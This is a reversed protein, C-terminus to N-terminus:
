TEERAASKVATQTKMAGSCLYKGGVILVDVDTSPKWWDPVGDPSNTGNFITPWSRLVSQGLANNVPSTVVDISPPTVYHPGAPLNQAGPKPYLWPEGESPQKFGNKYTTPEISKSM